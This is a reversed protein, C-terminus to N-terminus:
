YICLVGFFSAGLGAEENQSAEPVRHALGRTQNNEDRNRYLGGGPCIVESEESCGNARHLSHLDLM